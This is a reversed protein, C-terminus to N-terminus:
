VGPGCILCVIFRKYFVVTKGRLSDFIAVSIVAGFIAWLFLVLM